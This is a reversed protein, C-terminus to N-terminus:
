GQLRAKYFVKNGAPASVSSRDIAHRLGTWWIVDGKQPVRGVKADWDDADITAILNTDTAAGGTMDSENARRSGVHLKVQVRSGLHPDVDQPMLLAGAAAKLNAEFAAINGTTFPM